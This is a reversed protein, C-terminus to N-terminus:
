EVEFLELNANLFEEIIMLAKKEGISVKLIGVLVRYEPMVVFEQLTCEEITALFALAAVKFYGIARLQNMTYAQVDIKEPNLEQALDIETGVPSPETDPIEEDTITAMEFEPRIM